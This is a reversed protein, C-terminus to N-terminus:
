FNKAISLSGTGHPFTSFFEPLSTFLVNLEFNVLLFLIKILLYYFKLNPLSSFKYYTYFKILERILLLITFKKDYLFM